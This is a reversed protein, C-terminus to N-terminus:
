GVMMLWKMIEKMKSDVDGRIIIPYSCRFTFHYDFNDLTDHNLGWRIYGKKTLFSGLSANESDTLPMAKLNVHRSPGVDLAALEVKSYKEAGYARSSSSRDNMMSKSMNSSDTMTSFNAHKHETMCGVMMMLKNDGKM